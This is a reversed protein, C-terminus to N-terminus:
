CSESAKQNYTQIQNPKEQVWTEERIQSVISSDHFIQM